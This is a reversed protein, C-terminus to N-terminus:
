NFYSNVKNIIQSEKGKISKVKQEFVAVVQSLYKYIAKIGTSVMYETQIEIVCDDM